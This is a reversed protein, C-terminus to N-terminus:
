VPLAASTQSLEKLSQRTVQWAGSLSLGAMTLAVVFDPWGTRTGFVGLAAFLVAINSMADNRACIWVSRMNAEGTRFRYLMAAVGGNAILAALGVIGMLEAHPVTGNIAHLATGALVGFGFTGMTLGKVLAARARWALAMGAVSLSVAYNAADALFDLADAQLASSGAAISTGVEVLFMMLNIALALWLVVRFKGTPESAPRSSDNCCPDSMNTKSGYDKSSQPTPPLRLSRRM